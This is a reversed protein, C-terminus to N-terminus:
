QWRALYTRFVEWDGSTTADVFAAGILGSAGTIVITSYDRM